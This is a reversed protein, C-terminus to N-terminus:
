VKAQPNNKLLEKNLPNKKCDDCLFHDLDISADCDSCRSLGM